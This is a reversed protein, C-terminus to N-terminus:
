VLLHFKFLYSSKLIMIKSNYTNHSGINLLIVFLKSLLDVVRVWCLVLRHNIAQFALYAKIIINIVLSAGSHSITSELCM